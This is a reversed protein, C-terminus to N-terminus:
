DVIDLISESLIDQYFQLPVALPGKTGRSELWLWSVLEMLTQM